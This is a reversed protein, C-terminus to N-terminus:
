GIWGAPLRETCLRAPAADGSFSKGPRIAPEAASARGQTPRANRTPNLFACFPCLRKSTPAASGPKGLTAREECGQASPRFGKPIQISPSVSRPDPSGPDRPGQRICPNAALVRRFAPGGSNPFPGPEEYYSEKTHNLHDPCHPKGAGSWRMDDKPVPRPGKVLVTGLGHGPETM